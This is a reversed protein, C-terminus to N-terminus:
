VRGDRRRSRFLGLWGLQQTTEEAPPKPGPIEDVYMFSVSGWTNEVEVEDKSWSKYDVFGSQGLDGVFGSEDSIEVLMARLATSFTTKSLGAKYRLPGLYDRPLGIIV